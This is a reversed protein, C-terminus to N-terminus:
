ARGGARRRRLTVAIVGLGLVVAAGGLVIGLTGPGTIPGAGSGGGTSALPRSSSGPTARAGSDSSTPAGSSEVPTASDTPGTGTSTGARATAPTGRGPQEGLRVLVVDNVPTRDNPDVASLHGPQYTSTRDQLSVRASLGAAPADLELGLDFSLEEGVRGLQSLSCYYGPGLLQTADWAADHCAAPLDTVVRAGDPLHLRVSTAQDRFYDSSDAPGNNRAGITLTGRRGNGAPTWRGLAEHDSTTAVDFGFTSDHRGTLLDPGGVDDVPTEPSGFTLRPGTGQEFAYSNRLDNRELARNGFVEFALFGKFESGTVEIALPDLHVTQQPAVPSDITCVMYTSPMRYTQWPPTTAYECNSFQQRFKAGPGLTAQVIVRQAPLRGENTVELRPSLTSGPKVDKLPEPWKPVLNPGGVFVEVDRAAPKTNSGTVTIHLVGKAGIAAGEAPSLYPNGGTSASGPAPSPQECRHVTGTVECGLATGLEAVGALDRTDYSVRLDEPTGEGQQTITLFLDSPREAPDLSLTSAGLFTFGLDNEASAPRAGGVLLLTIVAATGFTRALRILAM